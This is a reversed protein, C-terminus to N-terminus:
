VARGKFGWLYGEEARVAVLRGILRADGPFLMLKHQRTRGRVLNPCREDLCEVLVEFSEGVHSRNIDCAVRNQLEVLAKLRQQKEVEPVKNPMEAARTGPRDSYRFMFAQDFRLAEVARLTNEFQRASEGPFGVMLDTTVALGPVLERGLDVIRRYSDLTYGRGMNRLVEDDGAQLPLHLHECVKSLRAMARLLKESCDKPHSTTFRIRWLSEVSDIQTLLDPFDVSRGLNRGYSNVNQGLLMVERYGAAVTERVERLVEEPKRSVERGRAYPVICYTCFNNCGYTINVFASVGPCRRVPLADPILEKTDRLIVPGQGARAQELAQVFQAINRPGLIIDVHDFRDAIKDGMIQAMCGCVAVVLWPRCRKLRRLEGLRSFVKTHPKERVSCTNLVVVDANEARDAPMFGLTEFQGALTESDRVNMQCGYTEIYYREMAHHLIGNRRYPFFAAATPQNRSFEM